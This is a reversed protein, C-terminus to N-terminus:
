LAFPSKVGKKDSCVDYPLRLSSGKEDENGILVFMM